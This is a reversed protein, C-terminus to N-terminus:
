SRQPLILGAATGGYVADVLAARNALVARQNVSGKDTLEGRDLSPPDGM